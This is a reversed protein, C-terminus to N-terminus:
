NKFLSPKKTLTYIYTHIHSSFILFFFKLIFAAPKPSASQDLSPGPLIGPWTSGCGVALPDRKRRSTTTEKGIFHIPHTRM